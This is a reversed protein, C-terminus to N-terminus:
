VGNQKEIFKLINAVSDWEERINVTTLDIESNIEKEIWIGLESLALSDFLGSKLLSTNDDLEDEFNKGSSKIKNKVYDALRDRRDM